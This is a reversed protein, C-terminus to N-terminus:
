ETKDYGFDYGKSTKSKKESSKETKAGYSGYGFDFGKNSYGGFGFNGYGM